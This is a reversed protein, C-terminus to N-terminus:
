GLQDENSCSRRRSFIQRWLPLKRGKPNCRNKTTALGRKLDTKGWTNLGSCFSWPDPDWYFQTTSSKLLVRCFVVIPVKSIGLNRNSKSENLKWHYRYFINKKIM